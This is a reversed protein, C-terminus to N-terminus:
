KLTGVFALVRLVWNLRQGITPSM